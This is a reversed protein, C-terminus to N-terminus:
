GRVDAFERTLGSKQGRTLPIWYRADEAFLEYWEDFRKEDILRAERYVLRILEADDAAGQRGIGQRAASM